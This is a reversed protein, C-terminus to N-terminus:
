DFRFRSEAEPQWGFAEFEAVFGGPLSKLTVKLSRDSSNFTLPLNKGSDDLRVESQLDALKLGFVDVVLQNLRIVKVTAPGGPAMAKTTANPLGALAKAQLNAGEIEVASFVLHSGFLSLVEPVLHIRTAQIGSGEESTVRELSIAPRPSFVARVEGIRVPQGLVRSLAAELQPRHSDYPYFIFTLTILALIAVVGLGIVLSLSIPARRAGRQIPKILGDDAKAKGSFFRTIRDSFSEKQLNVQLPRVPPPAISPANGFTSFPAASSAGGFTSFPAGSGSFQSPMISHPLVSTQAISFPPPVNRDSAIEQPPEKKEAAPQENRGLRHIAATKIEEALKKSQEWVSDQALKPAILGDRELDMLATEVLQVNGTKECLEGVTSKSDVLILVMRTNRQVVRTRQRVAEEGAATKEYILNADM